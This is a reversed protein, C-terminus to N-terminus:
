RCQIFESFNRIVDAAAAPAVVIAVVVIIHVVVAM